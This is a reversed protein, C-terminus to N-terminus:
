QQRKFCFYCLLWYYLVFYYYGVLSILFDMEEIPILFFKVETFM